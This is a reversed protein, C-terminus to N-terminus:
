RTPEAAVKDGLESTLSARAALLAAHTADLNLSAAEINLHALHQLTALDEKVLPDGGDAYKEIWARAQALTQEYVSTNRMILAHRADLLLLRLGQQLFVKQEPAILGPEARDLRQVRVMSRVALWIEQGVEACLQRGRELLTTPTASVMPVPVAAPENAPVRQDQILTLQSVSAIVKDLAEVASRVDAVPQTKLRDLDHAIATQLAQSASGPQDALRLQTNQLLVILPKPGGTAQWIQWTADLQQELGDLVLLAREQQLRQQLAQIDKQLQAQNSQAAELATLRADVTAESGASVTLHTVYPSSVPLPWSFVMQIGLAVLLLVVLVWFGRACFIRRQRITPQAEPAAAKMEPPQYDTPADSMAYGNLLFQVPGIIRGYFIWYEPM